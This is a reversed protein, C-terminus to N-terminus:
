SALPLLTLWVFPPEPDVATLLFTGAQGAGVFRVPRGASIGLPDLADAPVKVRLGFGDSNVV